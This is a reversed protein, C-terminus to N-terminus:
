GITSTSPFTHAGRYRCTLSELTGSCRSVLDVASRTDEEGLYLLVVKTFHLGNPLDLLRGIALSIGASSSLSLSGTLKPSSAQTNRAFAGEPFIGILALDELLPFSCVLDFVGFSTSTLRLSRLNPSLGHFPILAERDEWICHDLHLDALNHFSRIWSPSIDVDQPTAPALGCIFLSRTHHAPSNLPDPFTKMWRGIPNKSIGFEVRAFLHSRARPVWSKAVVCCAKLATPNDHLHDVIHDLLEPPLSCSMATQVLVTLRQRGM